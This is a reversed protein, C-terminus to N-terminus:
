PLVSGWGGVRGWLEAGAGLNGAVGLARGVRALGEQSM